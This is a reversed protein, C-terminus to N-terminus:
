RARFQQVFERAFAAADAEPLANIGAAARRGGGSEYRRCFVDAAVHSDVPVRVSVVFGGQSRPALLAIASAPNAQALDNALTGTVRKAWPTDPLVYLLAGAVSDTPELCGVQAMDDQYGGLLLQYDASLVFERPDSYNSLQEALLEPSMRLDAVVEGYSNYNVCLGLQHLVEVEAHALGAAAALEEAQPVLNDGFAAAIAWLRFRGKLYRDVLLSTCVEPSADLYAELKPHAPIDGAFHHDFYRVSVGAELLATLGARNVDLSVDLTTCSDGPEAPVRALLSIDRKVGTILRAAGPEALRLQQLAFLGDADGNFAFFRTV